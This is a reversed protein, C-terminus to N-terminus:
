FAGKSEFERSSAAAPAARSPEHSAVDEEGPVPPRRLMHLVYWTGMGFVVTYVVVFALLSALTAPAGIPSVSDATRLLGYVTYPQRGVETTIWGAVVAVFGSPGMLLVMKQFVRADYLRKRFRLWLSLLGVALMAM